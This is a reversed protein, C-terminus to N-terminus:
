KDEMLEFHLDWYSENDSVSSGRAICSQVYSDTAARIIICDSDTYYYLIGDIYDMGSGDIASEFVEQAQAFELDSCTMIAVTALLSAFEVDDTAFINFDVFVDAVKGDYVWAVMRIDNVNATYYDFEIDSEDTEVEPEEWCDNLTFEVEQFKLPKEVDNYVSDFKESFQELSMDFAAGTASVNEIILNGSGGDGSALSVVLIVAAVVVAIIAILKKSLKKKPPTTAEGCTECLTSGDEIEKGCKTCNM